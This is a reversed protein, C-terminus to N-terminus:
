KQKSAASNKGYKQGFFTGSFTPGVLTGRKKCKLLFSVWNRMRNKPKACILYHMISSFFFDAMGLHLENLGCGLTNFSFLRLQDFRSTCFFFNRRALYDTIALQRGFFDLTM